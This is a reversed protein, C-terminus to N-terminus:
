GNGSVTTNRLNLIGARANVIGGFRTSNNGTDPKTASRPARPEGGILSEHVFLRGSNSIGGGQASNNGDITTRRVTVTAGSAVALGGGFSTAFNGTIRADIIEVTSGAGVFVGGGGFANGRQITLARLMVRGGSVFFVGGRSDGDVVTNGVGSGVVEMPSRIELQSGLTFTMAPLTITDSGSGLPCEGARLGPPPETRDENAAAIAERLSCSGDNAVTDSNISVPIMAGHAPLVPVILGLIGFVIALIAAFM